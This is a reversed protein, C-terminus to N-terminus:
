KKTWPNLWILSKKLLETIVKLGQADLEEHKSNLLDNAQNLLKTLM